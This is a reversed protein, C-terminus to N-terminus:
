YLLKLAVFLIHFFFHFVFFAPFSNEAVVLKHFICVTLVIGLVPVYKAKVQYPKEKNKYMKLKVMFEFSAAQLSESELNLLRRRIPEVASNSVDSTVRLIYLEGRLLRSWLGTVALSLSIRETCKLVLDPSIHLARSRGSM